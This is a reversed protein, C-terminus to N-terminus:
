MGRFTLKCTQYWGGKNAGSINDITKGRAGQSNGHAIGKRRPRPLRIGVQEMVRQSRDFRPDIRVKVSGSDLWSLSPGHPRYWLRFWPSCSLLTYPIGIAREDVGSVSSSCAGHNCLMSSLETGKSGPHFNVVKIYLFSVFPPHTQCRPQRVSDMVREAVARIRSFVEM